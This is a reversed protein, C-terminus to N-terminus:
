YNGSSLITLSVQWNLGTLDVIEGTPYVLSLDLTNLKGSPIPKWSDSLNTNEITSGTNANVSVRFIASSNILSKSTGSSTSFDLQYNRNGCLARSIVYLSSPGSFNPSNEAYRVPSPGFPDTFGLFGWMSGTLDYDAQSVTILEAGSSVVQVRGDVYSFVVTGTVASAVIAANLAAIFESLTYPRNTFTFTLTGTVSFTMRINVNAEAYWFNLYSHPVTVSDVKYALAKQIEPKVYSISETKSGDYQDSDFYIQTSQYQRFNEEM